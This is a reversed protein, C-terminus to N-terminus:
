KEAVVILKRSNERDYPCMDFGGYIDVRSFGAEYLFSRYEDDLIIKIHVRNTEMRSENDSHYIDLINITQFGEEIDRAFVRTFNNNNVVLDFRFRDQLTLHTTGQTMILIGSDNLRGHISKFAIILDDDTHLHAISQTMCLIADFKVSWANELYRFDAQKTIVEIGAKSLNEHCVNLMAESYDSGFVNVGLKSLLYLHPGTGCACDLASKVGYRAFISCLFDKEKENVDTIAGFKDYNQAWSAYEDKMM